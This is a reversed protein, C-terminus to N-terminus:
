WTKHAACNSARIKTLSNKQLAIIDNDPALVVKTVEAVETLQYDTLLKLDGSPTLLIVLLRGGSTGVVFVGGNDGSEAFHISTIDAGEFEQLPKSVIPFVGSIKLGVDCFSHINGMAGIGPCKGEQIPGSIYEMNRHGMSGNFCNHINEDFLRNIQTLSYVCVASSLDSGTDEPGKGNTFTATLFSENRGGRFDTKSVLSDSREVFFADRVIGYGGCDLTVETYTDYNVDSVCVRALRTVYGKEEDGPLHSRKQVAVFFIYSTTNFGYVYNVLFRDRFKVDIRLLSQKSFSYEAFQLDHLNRSSIAPVDHRYDGHSTFTTGQFYVIM